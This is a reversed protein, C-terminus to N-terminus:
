QNLGRSATAEAMAGVVDVDVAAARITMVAAKTDVVKTAGVVKAAGAELPIAVLAITEHWLRTWTRKTL